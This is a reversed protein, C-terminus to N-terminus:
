DRVIDIGKFESKGFALVPLGIIWVLAAFVAFGTDKGFAKALGFIAVFLAVFNLFPIFMFIFWMINNENTEALIVWFNYYPVIGLWGNKGMKKFIKYMSIFFIALIAFLIVFYLIWFILMGGAFLLAFITDGSNSNSM